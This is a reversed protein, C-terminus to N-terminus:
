RKISRSSAWGLTLGSLILFKTNETRLWSFFLLGSATFFFIMMPEIMATRSLWFYGPMIGLFFSALLGTKAGYTRCGFEFVAYLTLLSFVVSVLRSTFLSIGGVAFFGATFIDYLPPYFSSHNLYSSFNGQLLYLGGNLHTVEDWQMSM